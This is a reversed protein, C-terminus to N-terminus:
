LASILSSIIQSVYDSYTSGLTSLSTGSLLVGDECMFYAYREVYDLSDLWPMVVQLFTNQEDTSGTAGMETIWLTRNGGAVYAEQVYEKFYDYNTASDYWHIPVFDITCEDNCETLFSELWALGMPAAGNTVAPAGLKASGSYPNMYTKYGAAADSASMDAEGSYDPENFSLLHSSGAALATSVSADWTDTDALSWLMPVFEFSSSLGQSTQGWNYAWGVTSSGEFADTLSADNYSLGRHGTKSTSSSSSSSASSTSSAAASSSYVSSSSSSYSTAM